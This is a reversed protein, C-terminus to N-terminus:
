GFHHRSLKYSFAVLTDIMTNGVFHVNHGTDLGESKLHQLGSEETVFHM